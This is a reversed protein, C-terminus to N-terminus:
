KTWKPVVAVAAPEMALIPVLFLFGGVGLAGMVLLVIMMPGGQGLLSFNFAEM